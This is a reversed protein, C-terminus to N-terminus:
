WDRQQPATERVIISPELMIRRKMQDEGHMLERLINTGQICMTMLPQNVTTLAPSVISAMPVNDYGIVAIDQPIRLGLETIKKMVGIAM